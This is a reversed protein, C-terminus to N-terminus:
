KSRITTQRNLFTRWSHVNRYPNLKEAVPVINDLIRPTEMSQIIDQEFRQQWKQVEADYINKDTAHQCYTNLCTVILEKM